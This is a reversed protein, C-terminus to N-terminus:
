LHVNGYVVSDKMQELLYTTDRPMDNAVLPNFLEDANRNVWYVSLFSLFLVVLGVMMTNLEQSHSPRLFMRLSLEPWVSETWSSFEGSTWNYNDIFFAPSVALTSVIGTEMCVGADGNVSHIWVYVKTDSHLASCQDKTTANTPKGTLQALTLLTLTSVQNPSRSVGVYLPLPGEGVVTDGSVNRFMGCQRDVLYCYLLEDVLTLTAATSINAPWTVDKDVLRALALAMTQAINAISNQVSTEAPQSGNAYKYAANVSDDFFGNYYMNTYAKNHNTLIVGPLSMNAKLFSHLSSPPLQQKAQSCSGAVTVDFQKSASVLTSITTQATNSMFCHCNLQRTADLQHLDIVQDLHELLVPADSTPFKGQLMDYVVRSSGIYDHAEGNLLGFMVNKTYSDKHTPLLRTLLHATTLLTVLGTVTTVAGPAVGDFMAAADLRATVLVVSGNAVSSYLQQPFLSTFINIDGMPDCYTLPNFSNILSNRRLCTPTDVAAYMHGTMQLSCLSREGQGELPLNFKEFCEHIQKIAASDKIFFLPVRWDLQLFGSGLPNWPESDSCSGEISSYRNPCTDDPSMNKPRDQTENVALLIGSVRPSDRLQLMVSRTFLQPPVVAMYPGASSQQLLWQVDSQNNVFHVVGKSGSQSTGCGFQNTGNLLRFCMASNKFTEYMMQNIDQRQASALPFSLLLLGMTLLGLYSMILYKLTIM